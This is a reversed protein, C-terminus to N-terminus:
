IKRKANQRKTGIAPYWWRVKVEGCVADAKTQVSGAEKCHIHHLPSKCLSAKRGSAKLHKWISESAKLEFVFNRCFAVNTMSRMSWVCNRNPFFMNQHWFTLCLQLKLGITNSIDDWGERKQKLLRWWWRWEKLWRQWHWSLVILDAGLLCWEFSNAGAAAFCWWRRKWWKGRTKSRPINWVTISQSFTKTFFQPFREGRETILPLM